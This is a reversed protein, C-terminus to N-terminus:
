DIAKDGTGALAELEEPELIVYRNKSYKYASVIEDNDVEGHIPCVKKYHIHRQCPRHLWDLDVAGGSKIKATYAAVPIALLSLKLLGRWVPRPSQLRSRRKM